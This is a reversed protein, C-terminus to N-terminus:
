LGRVVRYRDVQVAIPRQHVRGGDIVVLGEMEGHALGLLNVLSQRKGYHLILAVKKIKELNFGQERWLIMLNKVLYNEMIKSNKLLFIFMGMQRMDMDM